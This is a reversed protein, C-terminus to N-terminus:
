SLHMSKKDFIVWEYMMFSLNNIPCFNALISTSNFAILDNNSILCWISVYTLFFLPWLFRLELWHYRLILSMAMHLQNSLRQRQRELLESCGWLEFVKSFSANFAWLSNRASCPTGESSNSLSKHLNECSHAFTFNKFLFSKYTSCLETLNSLFIQM